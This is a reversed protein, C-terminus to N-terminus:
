NDSFATIAQQTLIYLVMDSVNNQKILFVFEVELVGVSVHFMFFPM